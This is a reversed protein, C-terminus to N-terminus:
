FEKLFQLLRVLTVIGVPTVLMPTSANKYQSLRVAIEIGLLTVLMPLMANAPQKLMVDILTFEAFVTYLVM